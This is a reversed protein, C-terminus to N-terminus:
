PSFTIILSSQPWKEEQEQHPDQYLQPPLLASCPWPSLAPETPKATPNQHGKISQSDSSSGPPDGLGTDSHHEPFGQKAGAPFSRPGCCAWSLSALFSIWVCLSGAACVPQLPPGAEWGASVRSRCFSGNRWSFFWSWSARSPAASCEPLIASRM